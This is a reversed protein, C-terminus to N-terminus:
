KSAVSQCCQSANMIHDLTSVDAFHVRSVSPICLWESFPFIHKRVKEQTGGEDTAGQWGEGGDCM